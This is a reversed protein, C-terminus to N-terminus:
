QGDAAPAKAPPSSSSGDGGAAGPKAAPEADGAPAAPSEAKKVAAKREEAEKAEAKARERQKEDAKKSEAELKEKQKKEFDRHWKFAARKAEATLEPPMQLTKLYTQAKDSGMRSAIFLWKLGEALDQEVGDGLARAIGYNYASEGDGLEASRRFLETAKAVDKKVGFGGQYMKAVIAIAEANDKAAEPKLEKMATEYDGRRFADRGTFFDARAYGTTLLLASLVFFCARNVTM